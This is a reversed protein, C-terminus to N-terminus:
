RREEKRRCSKGIKENTQGIIMGRVREENVKIVKM